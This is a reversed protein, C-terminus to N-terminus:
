YVCNGALATGADNVPFIAMAMSTLLAEAEDKTGRTTVSHDTFRTMRGIVTIADTNNISGQYEVNDVVCSTAGFIAALLLIYRFKRM